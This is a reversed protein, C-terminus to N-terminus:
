RYFQKVAVFFPTLPMEEQLVALTAWTDTGIGLEENDLLTEDTLSIAIPLM